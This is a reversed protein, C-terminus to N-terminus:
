KGSFLRMTPLSTEDRDTAETAPEVVATEKALFALSRNKEKTSQWRIIVKADKDDCPLQSVLVLFLLFKVSHITLRLQKSFSQVAIEIRGRSGCRFLVREADKNICTASESLPIERRWTWQRHEKRKKTSTVVGVVVATTTSITTRTMIQLFMTLSFGFPDVKWDLLWESLSEEIDSM